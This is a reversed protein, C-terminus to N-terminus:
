RIQVQNFIGYMASVLAIAVFGVILGMVVIVAPEFLATLQKLKYELEEGYFDAATELQQRPHRDGRRRPDDPVGGGPFLGTAALPRALGEGRDDGRPGRDLAESTSATTPATPPSPWRTPSRSAPGSWRASSGASASSSPTASSSASAGPHAAPHRDHPRTGADTRLVCVHLSSSALPSCWRRAGGTRRDFFDTVGLLMRTPLPLEADLSEFFTEFQPLVFGVLVVVTVIAM